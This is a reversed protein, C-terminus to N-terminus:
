WRGRRGLSHPRPQRPRRGAWGLRARARSAPEGGAFGLEQYPGARGRGRPPGPLARAERIGPPPPRRAPQVQQREHRQRQRLGAEKTVAPGHRHAAPGPRSGGAAAQTHKGGGTGKGPDPRTTSRLPGPRSHPGAQPPPRFTVLCQARVPRFLRPPPPPGEPTFPRAAQITPSLGM